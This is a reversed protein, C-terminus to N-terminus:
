KNYNVADSPMRWDGRPSLTVTGVKIGDPLCSRKFQSSFFRRMFIDLWKKITEKSYVDKFAACAMRFIKEKSFGWRVMNYLYFDHLEYPGVIEETQQAIEGNEDPPLLEPSVPTDLVDYLTKKLETNSSDAVYKVLYRVLTKPISCNVGYMSMHDGNYTAFGLALESLDGTGIVIGGTKNAIDMLVQTRERAQANEYTVDHCNIDAGIDSLHLTVAEKINVERLTAGLSKIMNVANNYTRSTTGFCPMTVAIIGSASLGLSEFAKATVLLALTSDLGGSVGITVTKAGIHKLRKKLGHYQIAFIEECRETLKAADSPVFPQREFSRDLRTEEVATKFYIHKYGGDEGNKFSSVRRREQLIKETDIDAYIIGESFLPAEALKTGLEFILNNGSFTMDTTSEGEGADAYIYACAAKSSHVEIMKRRWDSKGIVEDSASQNVIIVAGNKTHECSPPAATWLDECIEASIAFGEMNEASFIMKAGMPILRGGFMVETNESIVNFHRAEYFESYNPINSKPVFGLVEGDKVFAACNYLKGNKSVPLGVVSLIDLEATEEALRILEEEALGILSSQLFLDGCTYATLGLEPLVILKAGNAAAKKICEISKDTNFKVDAVRLEPSAAAAKIFGNKM